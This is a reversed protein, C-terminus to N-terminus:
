SDAGLVIITYDVASSGASNAINILDGTGATIATGTADPSVWLFCGGPRVELGDGAALFIPAGNSDPRTVNVNNVNARPAAVLIARIRAFIVSEGYIDTLSGSLDIDENASAALTRVDKWVLNAQDIGAGDSFAFALAETIKSSAIELDASKTQKASLSIRIATNLM